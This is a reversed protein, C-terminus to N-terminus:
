SRHSGMLQGRVERSPLVSCVGSSEGAILDPTDYAAADNKRGPDWYNEMPARVDRMAKEWIGEDDLARQLADAFAGADEATIRSGGWAELLKTGAYGFARAAYDIRKGYRLSFRFEEGRGNVLDFGLM